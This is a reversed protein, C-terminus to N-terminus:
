SVHVLRPSEAEPRPAREAPEHRRRQARRRLHHGHQGARGGLRKPRLGQRRLVWQRRRQQLVVGAHERPQGPDGHREEGGPREGCGAPM